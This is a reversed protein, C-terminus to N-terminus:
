RTPMQAKFSFASIEVLSFNGETSQCQLNPMQDVFLMHWEDAFTRYCFLYLFIVLPSSVPGGVNMQFYDEKSTTSHIIIIIM